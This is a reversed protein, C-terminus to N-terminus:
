PACLAPLRELDFAIRSSLAIERTPGLSSTKLGFYPTVSGRGDPSCFRGTATVHVVAQEGPSLRVRERRPEAAGGRPGFEVRINPPVSGASITAAFRGDNRVVTSVSATVATAQYGPAVGTTSRRAAEDSIYEGTGPGRSFDASVFVDPRATQTWAVLGGVIAALLCALLALKRRPRRSAVPPSVASPVDFVTM